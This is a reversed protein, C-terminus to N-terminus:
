NFVATYSLVNGLGYQAEGLHKASLPDSAYVLTYTTNAAGLRIWLKLRRM